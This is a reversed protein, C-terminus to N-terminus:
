KVDRNKHRAEIYPKSAKYLDLHQQFQEFTLKDNQDILSLAKQMTEVAEDFRGASAYAAGLTDLKGPNKYNTAICAQRALRIAESPNRMNSDPCTAFIWAANNKVDSNNPEIELIRKMQEIADKFNEESSYAIALTRLYTTNKHNTLKCAQEALRIAENANSGELEPHTVMLFALDNMFDPQNPNIQVAQRLQDLAQEFRGQAIFAKALNKHAKALDPELQIAQTFHAIAQTYNGQIALVFGLNNHVSSSNPQLHLSKRYHEIALPIKGQRSLYDGLNTYALYNGKTVDIAHSFITETNKWYSVQRFSYTALIALVITASIGLIFKRYPLRSFLESLGWALMIFLGIYPIYTYRDALAQDGVQVLGIVPVLTGAFFFWGAPLYKQQRGLRIVFVSIAILLLISIAIQWTPLGAQPFPYFIALNAPWFMKGIYEAYSVVANAARNQLPINHIDAVAGSSRQVFFTIISLIASLVFFPIKELVLYGFSKQSVSMKKNKVTGFRGLPWYDLLLLVFPLTVLMPKAMLGFAFALLAPFYRAKTQRQTYRYYALLTLMFFLTSLVDKRESVWAVSETHMPHLAFLAAVLASPWLSGTMKKLVAFLLLTNIIHFFVNVLHIWGPDPGFLQCDLMLSLGTLPHWNGVQRSTFAWIINDTKLGTTIHPNESVYATDDLTIFDFNRVQWFVLLTSGALISYIFVTLSKKAFKPMIRVINIFM